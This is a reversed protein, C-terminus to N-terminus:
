GKSKVFRAIREIGKEIQEESCAFSLRIYGELGFAKGPVLAVGEKELLEHCFRMSDGGCLSGIHIFLY